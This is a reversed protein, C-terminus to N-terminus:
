GELRYGAFAYEADRDDLGPRKLSKGSWEFSICRLVQCKFYIITCNDMHEDVNLGASRAIGKKAQVRDRTWSGRVEM